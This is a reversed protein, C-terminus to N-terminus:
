GEAYPLDSATVLTRVARLAVSLTALDFTGSEWIESITQRMRALAPRNAETWRDLREEPSLGAESVTLVQRTLVAHAAYLDDRLASRAMSSWRSDRPLAIVRERLRTLELRDALAFYVEAVEQLPRGTQAAIEVLDFTSYAPVMVAIREALDKPVGRAIFHDRREEYAALDRGVLLSPLVGLLERAGKAFLEATPGLEM